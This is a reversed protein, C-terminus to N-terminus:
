CEMTLGKPPLNLDAAGHDRSDRVLSPCKNLMLVAMFGLINRRYNLLM